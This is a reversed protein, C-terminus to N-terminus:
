SAEVRYPHFVEVRNRRARAIGTEWCWRKFRLGGSDGDWDRECPLCVVRGQAATDGCRWCPDGEEHQSYVYFQDLEADTM